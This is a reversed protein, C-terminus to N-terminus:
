CQVVPNGIICELERHLVLWIQLSGTAEMPVGILFCQSIFKKQPVIKEHM